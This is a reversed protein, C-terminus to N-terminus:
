VRAAQKSAAFANRLAASFLAPRIPAPPYAAVAAVRLAAARGASDSMGGPEGAARAASKRAQRQDRAADQAEAFVVHSPRLSADDIATRGKDALMALVWGRPDAAIAKAEQPTAGLGFRFAATTAKRTAM